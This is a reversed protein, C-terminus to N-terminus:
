RVRRAFIAGCGTLTSVTFTARVSLFVTTTASLSLRTFPINNGTPNAGPVVGAAANATSNYLSSDPLTASTTSSWYIIRAINTTATTIFTVNGWINWDGATLSISTINANVNTTLAVASGSPIISSIIEGVVGASANNNTTTGIIGGTSPSFTLSTATANGLIPTILTPSTALVPAGSGTFAVWTPVGGATTTLVSSNVVSVGSINNASSSYLLENITTSAPYVADSWSPAANSGSLLVQNATATGALVAGTTATSYFVGGNSATISAALGGRSLGLTGTWGLTLSTAQLLATAPTGGLTLTVNTDDTKTLAAPTPLQTTTALTGSTPFTVATLATMTFTSNFAGSTTLNGGLTLTNTGNNTGTGGRTPSLTGTWGLTLSTAQLLSTAPSGGLTLTVNTDDVKTMAAPVALQSTTALTGSVPFTVNTAATMTFVSSFAGSTTLNGALTLTSSGNNVGTGGRTPSLIGTWGLTLSTPQLLANSPSGGLTLTVNTDDTKTLAAGAPLQSTTALTGTTPFTVTTTGTFTFESTFTGITTLSGALTLTNAGNNVGTGGRAPSLLGTWGATILVPQLLATAPTGTLTLTVNVDNAQTFSSAAGAFAAWTGDGRWFTSSSAGTGNNLNTVPLNGVVGTSLPLGTCNSLIGSAPTGLFPTVLVPSTALVAFGTGTTSVWGPAGSVDTLLASSSATTLGSVAIGSTAYFALQNSTGPNVVGSTGTTTALTGSTPFTLTTNATLIFNSSYNGTFTTPGNVTITNGPLASVGTGGSEPSLPTTANANIGTQNAM